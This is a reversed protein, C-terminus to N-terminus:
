CYRESGGIMPIVERVADLKVTAARSIRFDMEESLRVWEKESRKLTYRFVEALQEVTEEAKEPNKHILGAIANLATFLFHPNIQARLAKLESRSAHLRLEQELHEQERQQQLAKFHELASSIGHALDQLLQHDESLFPSKNTRAGLRIMGKAELSPYIQVPIGMTAEIDAHAQVNESGLLVQVPAQFIKSLLKEATLALQKEDGVSSIGEIFYRRAEMPTFQRGLWFRDLWTALRSYAWPVALLIPLVALAHLWSTIGLDGAVGLFPHLIFFYLTLTILALLFFTERKIFIDYFQFRHTYYTSAFVFFLPLSRFLLGLFETSYFVAVAFLFFM